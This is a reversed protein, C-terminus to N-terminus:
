NVKAHVREGDERSLYHASFFIPYGNISATM